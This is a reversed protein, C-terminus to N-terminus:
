SEVEIGARKWRETICAVEVVEIDISDGELLKAPAPAGADGPGELAALELFCDKVKSWTCGGGVVCYSSKSDVAFGRTDRKRSPKLQVM